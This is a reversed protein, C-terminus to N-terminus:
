KRKKGGFRGGGALKCASCRSANNISVISNFKSIAGYNTCVHKSLSKREILILFYIKLILYIIQSVELFM